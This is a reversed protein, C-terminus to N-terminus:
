ASKRGVRGWADVTRNRLAIRREIEVLDDDSFRWTSARNRAPRMHPWPNVGVCRRKVQEPTIGFHEAVDEITHLTATM